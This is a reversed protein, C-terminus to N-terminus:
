LLAFPPAQSQPLTHPPAPIFFGEIRVQRLLSTNSHFSPLVAPAPPLAWHTVSSSICIPCKSIPQPQSPIPNSSQTSQTTVSSCFAPQVDTSQQSALQAAHILPLLWFLSLAFLAFWILKSQRYFHHM